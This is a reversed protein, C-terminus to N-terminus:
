TISGPRLLVGRLSCAKESRDRAYSARAPDRGRDGRENGQFYEIGSSKNAGPQADSTHDAEFKTKIESLRQFVVGCSSEDAPVSWESGAIQCDDVAMFTPPHCEGRAGGGELRWIAAASKPQTSQVDVKFNM